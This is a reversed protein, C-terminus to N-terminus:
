PCFAYRTHPWLNFNAIPKVVRALWKPADGVYQWIRQLKSKPLGSLGEVTQKHDYRVIISVLCGHLYDAMEFFWSQWRKLTSEDATVSAEPEGNIVAEISERVHRKYPVLMDPLEHHIRKCEVCRLRRISLIVKEGLSDICSRKRRSIEKLIESCCPCAIQELSRVFFM